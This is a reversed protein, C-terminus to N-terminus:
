PLQKLSVMVVGKRQGTRDQQFFEHYIMGTKACAMAGWPFMEGFYKAKMAKRGDDYKLLVPDVLTGDVGVPDFAADYDRPNDASSVFSGDVIVARCRAHRLNALARYLGSALFQRRRNWAFAVLFDGWEWPHIGVPLHGTVPNFPANVSCLM